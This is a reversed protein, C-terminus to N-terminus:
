TNNEVIDIGENFIAILRQEVDHMTPRPTDNSICDQMLKWILNPMNLPRTLNPLGMAIRPLTQPRDKLHPFPKQKAYLQSLHHTFKGTRSGAYGSHSVEYMMMGFAHVDHIATINLRQDEMYEETFPLYRWATTFNDIRLSEHIGIDSMHAHTSSDILFNRQDFMFYTKKHPISFSSLKSYMHQWAGCGEHPPVRTYSCM